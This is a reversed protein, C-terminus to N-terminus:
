ELSLIIYSKLKSVVSPVTFQSTRIMFHDRFLGDETFEYIEIEMEAKNAQSSSICLKCHLFTFCPKCPTLTEMNNLGQEM